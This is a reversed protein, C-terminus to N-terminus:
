PMVWFPKSIQGEETGISLWYFGKELEGVNVGLENYGLFATPWIKKIEKGLADFIKVKVRKEEELDFSIYLNDQVPNPFLHVNKVLISQSNFLGSFDLSNLMKIDTWQEDNYNAITAIRFPSVNGDSAQLIDDDFSFGKTLSVAQGRSTYVKVFDYTAVCKATRLSIHNGFTLPLEDKYFSALVDNQYASIEGSRADYTVKYDYWVGAQVDLNDNTLMTWEDDIVKYIQVSNDDTRFYIFYSNGRNLSNESDGFFHIGARKENGNGEIKMRWHYLYAQEDTQKLSSHINTNSHNEDKQQLSGATEQWSGSVKQWDTDLANDNFDDHFFGKNSNGKWKNEEKYLTQFYGSKMGVNCNDYDLFRVEFENFAWDQIPAIDAEPKCNNLVQPNNGGNNNDNNNTQDTCFWELEWGNGQESEDSVFEITIANGSSVINNPKNQGTYSGILSSNISNGDYIYLYDYEFELDFAVFNLAISSNNFSQFTQSYNENDRYKGVKGGTDFVTAECTTNCDTFEEEILDWLDTYGDDYGLAWIGIGGIKRQRVTEYREKLSAKDEYWCQKTQGNNNLTFYPSGSHEDFRYTQSNTYNNRIYNYTRSNGTGQTNSPINSSVTNWEYGYYPVAMILQQPSVGEDLYYNISQNLTYPSWINGHYLPAVPGAQSDSSYHYDYGMIIFKDVYNKLQNINFVNSWDVAFLALSISTNPRENALRNHLHQMFNTFSNRENGSVGEFDINVGDANRANLLYILNDILKNWANSNNLFTANNASGFNTVCLEIKVGADQALSIADTTLWNHVTKYDGTTPELEYSFYSLTSLLDYDYNNYVSSGIWHPQWGYVEYNLNCNSAQRHAVNDDSHAQKKTLSKYLSDYQAETQLGIKNYFDTQEHRISTYTNNKQQASALTQLCFLAFFLYFYKM